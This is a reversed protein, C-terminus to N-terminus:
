RRSCRRARACRASSRSRRRRRRGGRHPGPRRSGGPVVRGDARVVTRGARHRRAPRRGAAAPQPHGPAADPAARLRSGRQGAGRRRRHADDGHPHPRRGRAAPRRERRGGRLEGGAIEGALDILPRLLDTEYINGVGQLLVAMRELGMGTDINKAPLDGRIDFDEKARVEGLESQMFVLNWVELYREEDVVPGGERGHEPGRDYYIERARGARAPCAWTGTTTPRAGDNCGSRRFASSAPGSTSPRRTTTTSPRGCGTRTSATAARRSPTPLSSGPSRSRARRSTTASPSTAPWRSSTLHRTTTGVIDIDPTRVCKQVSAARPYPAPSDGLFYPKFPVMGANVLLLTPDDAILSASPVITHGRAEFFRLFRERIEASRM